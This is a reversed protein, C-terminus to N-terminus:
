NDTDNIWKHTAVNRFALTWAEELRYAKVKRQGSTDLDLKTTTTPSQIRKEVNNLDLVVGNYTWGDLDDFAQHRRLHIDGFVTEILKFKVGAVIHSKNAEIQKEISPINMLWEMLANGAFLTRSYSGNNGAFIQRGWSNFTANTGVTNGAYNIQGTIFHRAGGMLNYNKLESPDYLDKYPYGWLMTHEAMRRMDFIADTQYDNINFEVEKNHKMNVLSEEVQCMFIQVYNSTDLPINAYPTTQADTEHKAVGIRTFKKANALTPVYNAQSSSSPTSGDAAVGNIAIISLKNSSKNVDVVKFHFEKSNVLVTPFIGVDDKLWIHANTISIEAIKTAASFTYEATLTDQVGRVDSTYFKYENSDCPGVSGIERMITDLPFIDPRVKSIVSSIEPRLLNPSATEVEDTTVTGEVAQAAATAMAFNVGHNRDFLFSIFDPIFNQAAPEIAVLAMLFFILGFAIKTLKIITKMM